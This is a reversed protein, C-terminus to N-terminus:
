EKYPTASRSWCVVTYTKSVCPRSTLAAHPELMGGHTDVGVVHLICYHYIILDHDGDVVGAMNELSYRLVCSQMLVQARHFLVM